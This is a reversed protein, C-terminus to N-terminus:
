PAEWPGFCPKMRAIPHMPAGSPLVGLRHLPIGTRPMVSGRLITSVVAARKAAMEHGGWAVIILLPTKASTRERLIIDNNLPGIPDAAAALHQPYTARFAYENVVTFGGLRVRGGLNMLEWRGADDVAFRSRRCFSRLRCVTMDDEIADAKSPNLMCVLAQPLSPDWVRRLCYRYMRDDGVSLEASRVENISRESQWMTGTM